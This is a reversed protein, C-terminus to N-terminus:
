TGSPNPFCERPFETAEHFSRLNIRIGNSFRTGTDRSVFTDRGRDDCTVDTRILTTYVTVIMVHKLELSIETFKQTLM